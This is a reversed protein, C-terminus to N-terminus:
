HPKLLSSPEDGLHSPDRSRPRGFVSTRIFEINALVKLASFLRRAEAVVQLRIRRNWSSNKGHPRQLALVKSVVSNARLGRGSISECMTPAAPHDHPLTTTSAQRFYCCCSPLSYITLRAGVACHRRHLASNCARLYTKPPGCTGQEIERQSKEARLARFYRGTKKARHVRSERALNVIERDQATRVSINPRLGGYGRQAVGEQM